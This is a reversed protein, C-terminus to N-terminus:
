CPNRNKKPVYLQCEATSGLRLLCKLWLLWLSAREPIIAILVVNPATRSYSNKNNGKLAQGKNETSITKIGLQTIKGWPM